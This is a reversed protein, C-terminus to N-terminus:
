RNAPPRQPSTINLFWFFSPLPCPLSSFFVPTSCLSSGPNRISCLKLNVLTLAILPFLPQIAVMEARRPWRLGHELDLAMRTLTEDGLKAGHSIVYSCVIDARSGRADPWARDSSSIWEERVRVEDWTKSRQLVGGNCNQPIPGPFRREPGSRLCLMRRREQFSAQSGLTFHTCSPHPHIRCAKRRKEM